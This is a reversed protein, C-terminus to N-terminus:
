RGFVKFSHAGMEFIPAMDDIQNEATTFTLVYTSSDVFVGYQVGRAVMVGSGPLEVPMRYDIQASPVGNIQLSDNTSIITAGMGELESSTSTVYLEPSVAIPMSMITVNSVFHAAQTDIAWFDIQEYLGAQIFFDIYEAVGPNTTEWMGMMLELDEREMPLSDWTESLWIEFTETEHRKQDPARPQAATVVPQSQPTPASTPTPLLTHTPTPDPAPLLGCALSLFAASLSLIFFRTRM